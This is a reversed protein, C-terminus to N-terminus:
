RIPICDRTQICTCCEVTYLMHQDIQFHIFFFKVAYLYVCVRVSKYVYMYMYMYM